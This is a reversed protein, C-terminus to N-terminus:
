FFEFVYDYKCNITIKKFIEKIIIIIILLKLGKCDYKCKITTKKSFNRLQLM